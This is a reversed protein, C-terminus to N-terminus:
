RRKICKYAYLTQLLRDKFNLNKASLGLIYGSGDLREQIKIAWSTIDSFRYYKTFNKTYYPYTKIKEIEYINLENKKM